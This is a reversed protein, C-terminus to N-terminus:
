LLLTIRENVYKTYEDTEPLKSLKVNYKKVIERAIKIMSINKGFLQEPLCTYNESAEFAHNFDFIPAFGIIERKDNFIYGWNDQHRDSNGVLYDCLNMIDYEYCNTDIDYNQNMDGATVYGIDKSTFCKSVSIKTHDFSSERYDLVTFGLQQLIKSARVEKDVSNNKDGKYLYFHNNKRYWAKPFLGDTALDSVILYKNTITLNRGLLAIDVVANSLSNDFLNISEWTDTDTDKKVWYFDKLSLCKYTLAIDARDKDTTAQKINCANLIAKAHERDISLIRHACWWNFVVINNQTDAYKDDEFYIDFPMLSKDYIIVIGSGRNIKCVETNKLMIIYENNDKSVKKPKSNFATITNGYQDILKNEVRM